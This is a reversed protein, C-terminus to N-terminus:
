RRRRGLLRLWSGADPEDDTRGPPHAWSSADPEPAPFAALAPIRDGAGLRRGPALLLNLEHLTFERGRATWRVAGGPDGVIRHSGDPLLVAHGGDDFPVVTAAPVLSDVDFYRQTGDVCAAALVEGGGPSFALDCVPASVELGAARRGTLVDWLWLRHRGQERGAAALLREHPAFVVATIELEDPAELAEPAGPAGAGLRLLSIGRGAVALLHGTPSYSAITADFALQWEVLLRGTSLLWTSLSTGEIGTVAAGGPAFALARVGSHVDDDAGAMGTPIQRRRSALDVVSIEGRAGGLVLTRGDPSFAAATVGGPMEVNLASDLDMDLPHGHVPLEPWGRPLVRLVTVAGPGGRGPLDRVALLGDASVALAVAPSLPDALTATPLDRGPLVSVQHGTRVLRVDVFCRTATNRVTVVAAGDVTFRQSARDAARLVEQGGPMTELRIWGHRVATAFWRGHPSIAYRAASQEAQLQRLASEVKHVILGRFTDAPNFRWSTPVGLVGDPPLYTQAMQQGTAVSWVRLSREPSISVLSGEPLFAWRDRPDANSSVCSILQGSTGHHIWLQGHHDRIALLDGRPSFVPPGAARFPPTWVVRPRGAAVEYVTVEGRTAVALCAGDAAFTASVAAGAGIPWRHVVQGTRLERVVAEDDVGVVALQDAGTFALARVAVEHRVEGRPDLRPVDFLAVTAGAAVALMTEDASFALVPDGDLDAWGRVEARPEDRGGLIATALEPADRQDDDLVPELLVARDWRSDALRAGTLVPRVLWADRLDAGRLDAGTLDIGHLRQGALNVGRLDAYRLDDGSLDRGRLDQGELHVAGLPFGLRHGLALANDRAAQVSGRLLRPLPMEWDDGDEEGEVIAEDHHRLADRAWSRLQEPDALGVLFDIMLETLPRDHLPTSTDTRGESFHAAITAAVLYEMISRHTFAFRDDDGRRLLSSSGVAFAAEAVSMRRESLDTLTTRVTETLESQDVADTDSEWLAMALADVATRLQAEDLSQHSGPTVRRRDAEFRLWRGVLTAYLDASSLTGDAARAARLDAEPLEAIFSLMRPNTSLDVLDRLDHILRLREDARREAAARDPEALAFLRVLYDRIQSADFDLLRIQRSGALQRVREGFATRWQDDSAFHQARSTLVIKASGSVADLIMRLHEAARDFTVRQALEDFGDFLLVVRGRDLMRLVAPVRPEPERVKSLHLALLDAVDHSKELARLEVLMPVLRPLEEPLRRALERLLFSKGHGFDGLVLLFRASETDLWDLMATFADDTPAQEGPDDLLVYRQPVYLSPPYRGDSGLRSVQRLVYGHPDWRGEFEALGRLRIGGRHARRRLEPVGLGAGHVLYSDVYQGRADYRAHVGTRFAEVLDADVRGPCLGVPWVAREGDLEGSVELYRPEGAHAPPMLRVAAGPWRDRCADRVWGTFTEADLGPFAPPSSAPTARPFPPQDTPVLHGDRAGRLGRLLAQAAGDEDQDYLDVRVLPGLLGVPECLKVRVPVLTRRRPAYRAQWESAAWTSRLYAPSLLLLVHDAAALCADMWAVFNTGPVSHWDQLDVQWGEAALQWAIWRAWGVDDQTYSVFM